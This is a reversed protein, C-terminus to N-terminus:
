ARASVEHIHLDLADEETGMDKDQLSVAVYKAIHQSDAVDM